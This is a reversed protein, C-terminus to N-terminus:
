RNSDELMLIRGHGGERTDMAVATRMEGSGLSLTGSDIVVTTTGWLTVRLQYDGAPVEFYDSTDLANIRFTPAETALDAGPATVYIDSPLRAFNVVRVKANGAAPEGADDTLLTSGPFLACCTVLTYTRGTAFYMESAEIWGVPSAIVEVFHQGPKVALYDSVTAYTLGTLVRAGGLIIDLGTLEDDAHLVRLRAENGDPGHVTATIADTLTIGGLTLSAKIVATGPAAATLLGTSSVGVISPASSSYTAAATGPLPVGAQDRASLTLQLTNGGAVTSLDAVRPSLEFITFRTGAPTPEPEFSGDSGCAAFAACTLLLPTAYRQMLARVPLRPGAGRGPRANPDDPIGAPTGSRLIVRLSPKM